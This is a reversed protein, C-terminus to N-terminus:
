GGPLPPSYQPRTTQLATRQNCSPRITNPTLTRPVFDDDPPFESPWRLSATLRESSVPPYLLRAVIGEQKAGEM